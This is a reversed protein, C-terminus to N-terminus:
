RAAAHLPAQWKAGNIAELVLEYNGEALSARPPLTITARAGTQGSFGITETKFRSAWAYSYANRIASEPLSALTAGDWTAVTAGTQDVLRATIIYAAGTDPGADVYAALRVSGDPLMTVDRLALHHRHFNVRSHLPTVVAGFLIQYSLVTFGVCTAALAVALKRLTEAPLPGSAIWNLWGNRQVWATRGLKADLSVPGSGAVFVASSMAVGSVAMTWEDLCTSGMWGFILMLVVNLWFSAFAAARTMLGLMLALGVALEALTWLWVSAVIMDPHVLTWEIPGQVWLAGPLAHTLKAAVFGPAHFDLKLALDVGDVEHFDYLLRRSAGGWFIFGQVFRVGLLALAALSLDTREVTRAQTM